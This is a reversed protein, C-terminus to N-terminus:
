TTVVGVEVTSCASADSAEVEDVTHALGAGGTSDEITGLAGCNLLYWGDSTSGVM